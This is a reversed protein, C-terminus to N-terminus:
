FSIFNKLMINRTLLLALITARGRSTSTAIEWRRKFAEHDSPKFLMLETLLNYSAQQWTHNETLPAWGQQLLGRLEFPAIKCTGAIGTKMQYPEEGVILNKEALVGMIRSRIRAIHGSIQDVSSHFSIVVREPLQKDLNLPFSTMSETDLCGAIEDIIPRAADFTIAIDATEANEGLSCACVRPFSNESYSFDHRWSEPQSVGSIHATPTAYGPTAGDQTFDGGWHNVWSDFLTKKGLDRQDDNMIQVARSAFNQWSSEGENSFQLRAFSRLKERISFLNEESGSVILALSIRSPAVIIEYSAGNVSSMERSFRGGIFKASLFSSTTFEDWSFIEYVTSSAAPLVIRTPNIQSHGLNYLPAFRATENGLIAAASAIEGSAYLSVPQWQEDVPRNTLACISHLYSTFSSSGSNKVLDPIRAALVELMSKCLSVAQGGDGPYFIAFQVGSLNHSASWVAGAADIRTALNEPKKLMTDLLAQYLNESRNVGNIVPPSFTVVLSNPQESAVPQAQASIVMLVLLSALWLGRIFKTSNKMVINYCLM